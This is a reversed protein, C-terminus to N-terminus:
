IARQQHELWKAKLFARGYGSKLVKERLRAEVRSAMPEFYFMEWPRYAKTSSTKGANHQNLRKDLNATMGIYFRNHTISKLAYVFMM